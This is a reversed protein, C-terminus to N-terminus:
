DTRFCGQIKFLDVVIKRGKMAVVGEQVLSSVVRSVTERSTGALTAIEYHTYGDVMPVGKTEYSVTAINMLVRIVRHRADRFAMDELRTITGRLRRSMTAILSLALRPQVQIAASLDKADLGLVEVDTMAIVDASRPQADVLAMEGFHSPADLYGLALEKGDPSARSVKVRGSVLLYMAAGPENQAIIFEGKRVKRLRVLEALTALDDENLGAFLPVSSLRRMVVEKTATSM